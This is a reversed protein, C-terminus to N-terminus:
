GTASRCDTARRVIKAACRRHRATSLDLCHWGAAPGRQPDTPDLPEVLAQVYLTAATIQGLSLWGNAYGIGGLILVLVLPMDYVFGIVIFLLNRLSM